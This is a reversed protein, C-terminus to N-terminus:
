PWIREARRCSDGCSVDGVPVGRALATLWDVFRVGNAAILYMDPTVTICHGGGGATFTHFNDQKLAARIDDQNQQLLDFLSVDGLGALAVFGSQVGDYAANYQAFQVNPLANAAVSYLTEFTADQETIGAFEDGLISFTNWTRFLETLVGTVNRYGGSADGLQIVRAGDYHKAVQIAYFPSPLSGASCGTVFVDSAAPINDFVWALVAQANDYGRHEIKVTGGGVRDYTATRSGLHVDGTCYPVFVMNYDRFPNEPNRFAAIGSYATPNDRETVSSDYTPQAALDCNRGSWCAGGGQFHILLKDSPQDAPRAFFSYPTGASCITGDGGAINSWVGAPLEAWTPQPAPTAQQATTGM